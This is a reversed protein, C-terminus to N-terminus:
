EGDRGALWDAFRDLLGRGRDSGTYGGYAIREVEGDGEKAEPTMATM